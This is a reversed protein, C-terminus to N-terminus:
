RERYGRESGRKESSRGQVGKVKIVVLLHDSNVREEIKLEMETLEGRVIVYDIVSKGRGGV